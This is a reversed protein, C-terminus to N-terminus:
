DIIATFASFFDVVRIGFFNGLARLSAFATPMAPFSPVLLDM